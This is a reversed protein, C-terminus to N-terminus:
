FCLTFCRRPMSFFFKLQDASRLHVPLFVTWSRLDHCTQLLSFRVSGSHRLPNTGASDCGLIPKFFQAQEPRGAGKAGSPRSGTGLDPTPAKPNREGAPVKGGWRDKVCWCLPFTVRPTDHVHWTFSLPPLFPVGQSPTPWAKFCYLEAQVGLWTSRPTWLIDFIFGVSKLSRFHHLPGFFIHCWCPGSLFAMKAM